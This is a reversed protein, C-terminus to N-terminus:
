HNEAVSEYHRGAHELFIFLGAPDGVSTEDDVTEALALSRFIAVAYPLCFASPSAPFDCWGCNTSSLARRAM